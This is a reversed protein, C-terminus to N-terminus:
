EECFCWHTVEQFEEEIDCGNVGLDSVINFKEEQWQGIGFITYSNVSIGKVFCYDYECRTQSEKFFSPVKDKISIWNIM